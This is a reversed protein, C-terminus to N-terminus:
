RKTLKEYCGESDKQLKLELLYLQSQLARTENLVYRRDHKCPNDDLHSTDFGVVWDSDKIDSSNFGFGLLKSGSGSYTLGGHVDVWENIIDYGLGNLICGEPIIVYGCGWGFDMVGRDLWTNERLIYKFMEVVREQYDQNIVNAKLVLEVIEWDNRDFKFNEAINYRDEFSPQNFVGDNYKPLESWMQMEWLLTRENWTDNMCEDTVVYVENSILQNDLNICGNGSLYTPYYINGRKHHSVGIYVNHNKKYRVAFLKKM